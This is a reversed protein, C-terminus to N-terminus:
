PTAELGSWRTLQGIAALYDVYTRWLRAELEARALQTDLAQRIQLLYDATSLEGERWLRELLAERRDVDTGQSSQWGTWADMTARYADVAARQGSALQLRVREADAAAAEVDAQAAVVEARYGNRVFLPIRVSVGIIRDQVNGYDIRGGSVGVTPDPKRNRRAVLAEGEAAEVAAQAVRWEPLSEPEPLSGHMAPPPSAKLDISDLQEPLGGVARFRAKAEAEESILRAQESGAEDRALAALDRELGSIDGADFRREALEAFRTMLALRKEGTQLRERASLWATWGIFWQRIFDRERVRAEALTLDLRADAAQRRADRKGSLDLTLDVGLTARRDPGEDEAALELEPNYLPQGAATRRAQAAALQAQTARYGPYDQWATQLARQVPMPARDTVTQALVLVPFLCAMMAIGLRAVQRRRPRPSCSM